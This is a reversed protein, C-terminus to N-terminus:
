YIRIKNGYLNDDTEIEPEQISQLESNSRALSSTAHQQISSSVSMSSQPPSSAPLNPPPYSPPVADPLGVPQVSQAQRESPTSMSPPASSQTEPNAFRNANLLDSQRVPPPPLRPYVPQAQLSLSSMRLNRPAAAPARINSLENQDQDIISNRGDTSQATTLAYAVIRRAHEAASVSYTEDVESNLLSIPGDISSLVRTSWNSSNQREITLKLYAENVSAYQQDLQAAIACRATLTKGCEEIYNRFEERDSDSSNRASLFNDRRSTLENKAALLQVIERNNEVIKNDVDKKMLRLSAKVANLVKSYNQRQDSARDVNTITEYFPIIHPGIAVRIIDSIDFVVHNEKWCTDGYTEQCIFCYLIEKRRQESFSICVM